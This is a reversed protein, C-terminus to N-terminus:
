ADRPVFLKGSSLESTEVVYKMVDPVADAVTLEVPALSRSRLLTGLSASESEWATELWKAYPVFTDASRRAPKRRANGTNIATLAVREGHAAVLAQADITLVVQARPECAKRQRNLREPDFWFFVKSNVLAYWEAPTLGVLCASLAEVPMPLQDRIEVGTPLRTHATRQHRELTVREAAPLEAVDLLRSASLLGRQQISPWNAAEALHYAHRPLFMAIATTKREVFARVLPTFQPVSWIVWREAARRHLRM